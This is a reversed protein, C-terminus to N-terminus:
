RVLKAERLREMAQAAKALSSLRQAPTLDLYERVLTLDVGDENLPAPAAEVPAPEAVSAERPAAEDKTPM